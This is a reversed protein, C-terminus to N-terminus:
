SNRRYLVFVSVGVMLALLVLWQDGVMNAARLIAAFIFTIFSASVFAVDDGWRKFIMFFVMFISLLIGLGFTDSTVVNAYKMSDYLGTVNPYPYQTWTNNLAM